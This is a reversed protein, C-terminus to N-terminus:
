DSHSILTFGEPTTSTVFREGGTIIASSTDSQMRQRIPVPSSSSTGPTVIQRGEAKDVLGMVLAPMESTQPSNFSALVWQTDSTDLPGRCIPCTSDRNVIRPM